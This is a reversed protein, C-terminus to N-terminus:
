FRRSSAIRILVSLMGKNDLLRFAKGLNDGKAEQCPAM